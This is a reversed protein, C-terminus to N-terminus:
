VMLDLKDLNNMCIGRYWGCNSTFHFRPTNTSSPNYMIGFEVMKKLTASYPVGLATLWEKYAECSIYLISLENGSVTKTEKALIPVGATYIIEDAEGRVLTAKLEYKGKAVKLKDEIKKLQEKKNDREKEDAEKVANKAEELQSTLDM